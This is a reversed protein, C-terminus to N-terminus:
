RPPAATTGATSRPPTPTFQVFRAPHLTGRAPQPLKVPRGAGDLLRAIVRGPNQRSGLPEGNRSFVLLGNQPFYVLPARDSRIGQLGPAEMLLRKLEEETVLVGGPRFRVNNVILTPIVKSGELSKGLFRYTEAPLLIRDGRSPHPDFGEITTVGPFDDDQAPGSTPTGCPLGPVDTVGMALLATPANLLGPPFRLASPCVVVGGLESSGRLPVPRGPSTATILSGPSSQAPGNIHIYDPLASVFRASDREKSTATLIIEDGVARTYTNAGGVIYTNRGNAGRLTEDTGPSGILVDNGTTGNVTLRRGSVTSYVILTTTGSPVDLELNGSICPVWFVTTTPSSTCSWVKTAPNADVSCIEGGMPVAKSVQAMGLPGALLAGALLSRAWSRLSRPPPVLGHPHLM